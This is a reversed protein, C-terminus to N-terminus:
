LCSKQLTLNKYPRHNHRLNKYTLLINEKIWYFSYFFLFSSYCTFMQSHQLLVKFHIRAIFGACSLTRTNNFLVLVVLFLPISLEKFRGKKMFACNCYMNFEMGNLLDLNSQRLIYSYNWPWLPQCYSPVNLGFNYSFVVIDHMIESFSM